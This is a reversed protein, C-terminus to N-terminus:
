ITVTCLQERFCNHLTKNIDAPFVRQGQFPQFNGQLLGPLSPNQPIGNQAGIKRENDMDVLPRASKHTYSNAKGQLLYLLIRNQIDVVYIGM